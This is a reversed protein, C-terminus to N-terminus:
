GLEWERGEFWAIAQPFLVSQYIDDQIVGLAMNRIAAVIDDVTKFKRIVGSHSTYSVGDQLIIFSVTIGDPDIGLQINDLSYVAM